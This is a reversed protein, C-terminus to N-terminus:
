IKRYAEKRHKVRIVMITLVSKQEEFIVRYDGCRIRYLSKSDELKKLDVMLGSVLNYLNKAIKKSDKSELSNLEKRASKTFEIKYGLFRNLL